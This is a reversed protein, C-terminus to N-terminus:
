AVGSEPLRTRPVLVTDLHFISEFYIRVCRCTLISVQHLRHWGWVWSKRRWEINWLHRGSITTSTTQIGELVVNTSWHLSSLSERPEPPFCRLLPRSQLVERWRDSRRICLSQVVYFQSMCTWNNSACQGYPM